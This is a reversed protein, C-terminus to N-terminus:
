DCMDEGDFWIGEELGTEWKKETVIFGMVNVHHFGPAAYLSEDDHDGSEIIAWVNHVDGRKQREALRMADRFTEVMFEGERELQVPSYDNMFDDESILSM